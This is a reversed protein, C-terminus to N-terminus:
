LPREKMTQVKSVILEFVDEVSEADFFHSRDEFKHYESNIHRAVHDAEEIRIFPDDKSHFQLIGFAGVNAKMRDWEWPRSYYGSITEAAIGSNM